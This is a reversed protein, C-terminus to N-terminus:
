LLSMSQNIIKFNLDGKEWSDFKDNQYYNITGRTQTLITSKIQLVETGNADTAWGKYIYDIDVGVFSSVRIAGIDSIDMRGTLHEEYYIKVQAQLSFMILIFIPIISYKKM